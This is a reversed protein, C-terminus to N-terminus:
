KMRLLQRKRFELSYTARTAFNKQLEKLLEDLGSDDDGISAVEASYDGYGYKTKYDFVGNVLLPAESGGEHMVNNHDSLM